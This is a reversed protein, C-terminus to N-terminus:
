VEIGNEKFFTAYKRDSFIIHSSIWEALFDLIELIAKQQDEDIDRESLSRIKDIYFKHEKKQEDFGNYGHKKMLEEEYGFHYETYDILSNIVKLIEDYRDYSSKLMAIDYAENGIEFLRKHQGDIEEIGLRYRDKWQFSM